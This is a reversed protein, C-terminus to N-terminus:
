KTTQCNSELVLKSRKENTTALKIDRYKRLNRMTKGFVYNIMLKVFDKEFENKAVMRKKTNM